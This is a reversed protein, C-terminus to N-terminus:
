RCARAAVPSSDRGDAVSPPGHRRDLREAEDMGTVEMEVARDADIRGHVGQDHILVGEVLERGTVLFRKHLRALARAAGYAAVGLRWVENLLHTPVVFRRFEQQVSPDDLDVQPLMRLLSRRVSPDTFDAKRLPRWARVLPRAFPWLLHQLQVGFRWYPAFLVQGSTQERVTALLALAGGLSHGLVIVPSHEKRLAAVRRAVADLWESYKREGLTGLEPGFGPLLPADVTWGSAHLSSAIARVDAPTGPFGHVLVAAPEGGEWRFPM